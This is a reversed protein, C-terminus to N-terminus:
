SHTDRIAEDEYGMAFPQNRNECVSELCAQSTQKSKKNSAGQSPSLILDRSDM